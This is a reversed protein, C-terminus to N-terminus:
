TALRHLATRFFRVSLYFCFFAGDEYFDGGICGHDHVLRDAGYSCLSNRAPISDCFTWRATTQIHLRWDYINTLPAAQYGSRLHAPKRYPCDAVAWLRRRRLGTAASTGYTRNGLRCVVAEGQQNHLQIKEPKPLAPQQLVAQRLAHRAGRVVQARSVM